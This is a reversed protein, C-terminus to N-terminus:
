RRGAAHRRVGVRAQAVALEQDGLGVFGVRREQTQLRHQRHDGVDVGIVHLGVAVIERPQLLREDVERLAQREVADATSHMSSALTRSM